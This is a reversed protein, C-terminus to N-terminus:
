RKICRVMHGTEVLELVVPEKKCRDESCICRPYFVCGESLHFLDPPQGAITFLPKREKDEMRPRCALLCQTYPHLPNKFITKVDAYEVIYGAYMVMVNKCLEAVIGLDHTILIISSGFSQNLEKMLSLIQAQITVDLATTPEDAILLDPNCSLAMAIMIRQRMGGSLHHPYSVMRAEPEPIKVKKLMDIAMNIAEKKSVKQHLLIAELLQDGITFVPNLSTMPDQFVMSIRNGRIKRMENDTKKLLNEGQFIIEGRSIRAPPCQLLGMISLATVSKGSGSEGVIGLKEGKKLTFSIGNVAHIIGSDTYFKVHLDKLDLFIEDM